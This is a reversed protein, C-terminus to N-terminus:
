ANEMIVLDIQIQWAIIAGRSLASLRLDCNSRKIVTQDCNTGEMFNGGGYFQRWFRLVPFISLKPHIDSLLRKFHLDHVVGNM